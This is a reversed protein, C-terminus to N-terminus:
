PEEMGFDRMAYNPDTKFRVRLSWIMLLALSAFLVFLLAVGSPTLKLGFASVMGLSILWGVVSASCVFGIMRVHYKKYTKM